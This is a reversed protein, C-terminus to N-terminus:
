GKNFLALPGVAAGTSGELALLGAKLDLADAGRGSMFGGLGGASTIVRHCPLIIPLPNRGLAGGVARTARPRDVRHAMWQYSRTEGYPIGALAHCVAQQFPTGTLQLPLADFTVIEGVFYRQLLALAHRELDTEPDERFGAPATLTSGQWDLSILAAETSALSWGGLPSSFWLRRKTQLPRNM